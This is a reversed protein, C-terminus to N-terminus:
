DPSLIDFVFALKVRKSLDALPGYGGLLESKGGPTNEPILRKFVDKLIEDAYACVIVPLLRAEDNAVANLLRALDDTEFPERDITEVFRKIAHREFSATYNRYVQLGAKEHEGLEMADIDPDLWTEPSEGPTREDTM